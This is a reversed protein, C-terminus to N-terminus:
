SVYMCASGSFITTAPTVATIRLKEEMEGFHDGVSGLADKFSQVSVYKVYGSTYM